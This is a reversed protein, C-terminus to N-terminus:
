RGSKRKETAKTLFKQVHLSAVIHRSQLTPVMELDARASEHLNIEKYYLARRLDTDVRSEEDIM